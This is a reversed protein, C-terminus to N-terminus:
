VGGSSALEITLELNIMAAAQMGAAAAQIAAQMRTTVRGLVPGEVVRQRLARGAVADAHPAEVVRRRRRGEIRDDLRDIAGQRRARFEGHDPLDHQRALDVRDARDGVADVGSARLQQHVADEAYAVDLGVHDRRTLGRLRTMALAPIKV